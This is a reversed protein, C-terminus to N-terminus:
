QDYLQCSTIKFGAIQSGVEPQQPRENLRSHRNQNKPKHEFNAEFGGRDPIKWEDEPQNGADDGPEKDGIGKGGSCVRHDFIAEQDFFHHKPDTHQRNDLQQRGQNDVQKEYQHYKGKEDGVIDPRGEVTQLDEIVSKGHDHQQEPKGPHGRSQNDEEFIDSLNDGHAKLEAEPQSRNEPRDVHHRNFILKKDLQVWGVIDDLPVAVTKDM